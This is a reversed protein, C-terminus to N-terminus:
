RPLHHRMRDRRRGRRRVMMTSPTATRGNTKGEVAAEYGAIQDMSMRMDDWTGDPLPTHDSFGLVRMGAAVAEKAYALCDGSAHDCRWTHTHFNAVFPM